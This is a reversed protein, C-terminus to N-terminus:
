GNVAETALDGIQYTASRYKGPWPHSYGLLHMYEHMMHGALEGVDATKAWQELHQPCTAVVGTGSGDMGITGVRSGPECWKLWKEGDKDERTITRLRLDVVGDAGGPGQVEKARLISDLVQASSRGRTHKFRGSVVARQFEASNLADELRQAAARAFAAHEVYGGALAHLEVRVRPLDRAPEVPSSRAQVCASMVLACVIPCLVIPITNMRQM